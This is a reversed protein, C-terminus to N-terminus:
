LGAVERVYQLVGSEELYQNDEVLPPLQSVEVSGPEHHQDVTEEDLIIQPLPTVDAPPEAGEAVAKAMAAAYAGRWAVFIDGEAVWRPVDRLATIGTEDGGLGGVLLTIYLVAVGRAALIGTLRLLQDSDHSSLAATPEDLLLIRSRRALAKLIGVQQQQALPLSDMSRDLPLDLDFTRAEEQARRRIAGPSTTRLRGPVRGLCINEAVTLRPVYILEQPMFSIGHRIAARPNTLAVERGEVAVTGADPTIAGALVKALTSKGAGNEGLLAAVEGHRLSFSVGELVRQRGYQKVLGHVSLAAAQGQM